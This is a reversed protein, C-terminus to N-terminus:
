VVSKRDKIQLGNSCSSCYNPSSCTICSDILCAICSSPNTIQTYYNACQACNGATNCQVCNSINCLVCTNSITSLTYNTACGCTGGPVLVFGTNCQVCVNASSCISCYNPSCPYCYGNYPTLSSNSCVCNGNSNVVLNNVCAGCVNASTCSQCNPTTCSVCTNGILTTTSNCICAYSSSITFTNDNCGCTTTGNNTTLILTGLCQGCTNSSTCYQCYQVNCTICVTGSSNTYPLQGAPCQCTGNVITYPSSCVCQGNVPAGFGSACTQCVNNASCSLCNPVVSPNCTFCSTGVLTNPSPCTCANGNVVFGNSTPCNCATNGANPQFNAGCTACTTLSACSTCGNINCLPNCVNSVLQYNTACTSCSGPTTCSACNNVLCGTTTVCSGNIPNWGEPCLSCYNNSSCYLCNYIGSCSTPTLTPNYSVCQFNSNMFYGQQCVFCMQLGNNFQKNQVCIQCYPVSCTQAICSQGNSAPMLGWTCQICNITGTPTTQCGVCGAIASSGIPCASTNSPALVNSYIACTNGTTLYFGAQCVLCTNNSLCAVCNSICSFPNCAGNSLTFFPTCVQCVNASSCVSCGTVKCTYNQVASISVCGAAMLGNPIFGPNCVFCVTQNANCLTCNNQRNCVNQTCAGSSQLSFGNDCQACFNVSQCNM